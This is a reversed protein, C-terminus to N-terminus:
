RFIGEIAGGGSTAKSRWLHLVRGDTFPVIFPQDQDGTPTAKNLVLESGSFGTVPAVDRSCIDLGSASSVAKDSTWGLLFGGSTGLALTPQNQNGTTFSNALQLPGLAAMQIDFHRVQIDQLQGGSANSVVTALVAETGSWILSPVDGTLALTTIPSASSGDANFAQAYVGKPALASQWAVITQGAANVAIAPNSQDGFTSDAGKFDGLTAVIADGVPAGALDYRQLAVGKDSQSEEVSKSTWSVWFGQANGAVAPEGNTTSISVVVQKGLKAGAGDLLQADVETSGVGV